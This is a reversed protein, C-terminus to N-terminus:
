DDEALKFTGTKRNLSIIKEGCMGYEAVWIPTNKTMYFDGGKYGEFCEGLCSRCMKLTEEVTRKDEAKHFALDSYYGRYSHPVELGDIEKKMPMTELVEILKGLTMQTEARQKQWDQNMGNMLAQMPNIRENDM